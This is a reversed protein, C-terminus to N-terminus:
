AMYFLWLASAAIVGVVMASMGFLELARGPSQGKRELWVFLLWILTPIALGAVILVDM